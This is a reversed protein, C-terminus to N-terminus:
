IGSTSQTSHQLRGETRRVGDCSEVNQLNAFLENVYTRQPRKRKTATTRTRGLGHKVKAAVLQSFTRRFSPSSFYYLVPDLMSNLYTLCITIYFAMELAEVSEWECPKKTGRMWILVRTVNCPLFCVTFVVMVLNLCRMIRRIRTDSKAFRERLKEYTRTTCFIIVGLAVLFELFFVASYYQSPSNFSECKVTLNTRVLRSETLLTVNLTITVTWLLGAIRVARGVSMSNLAHLPHVVRMYRDVAVATLFLVSGCRNMALMFLSVRCVTDGFRWDIGSLYYSARLPLAMNLLFDTLALNFLFVTSSRWPKMHYFIWLAVGNGTVGLVFELTIFTPLVQVLIQGKDIYDSSM